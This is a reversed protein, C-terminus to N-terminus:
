AGRFQPARRELYARCGEHADETDLALGIMAQEYSLAADPPMAAGELMTRKLFALAISSKQSLEQALARAEELLRDAPVVRNALGLAVADTASIRRGTFMLEKACCLPIQRMLRQTGGASPFLGLNIEPMGLQATDALLRIDLTLLLEVGGGLAIGNVAGITPKPLHEIRRFVRHITEAFERYHALGRRSEVDAIDGGAVFAREGAGTVVVVRAADDAELRAFVSELEVLMHSDLANMAHARDITVISVPGDQEVHIV